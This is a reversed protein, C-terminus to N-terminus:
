KIEQETRRNNVIMEIDFAETRIRRDFYLLTVGIFWIPFVLTTLVLRTCTMIVYFPFHSRDIAKSIIAWQIIDMFDTKGALQALILICGLSVEFIIRIAFALLVSFFLVGFAQWEAGRVLESSRKLAYRVSPQELLVTQALFAWRVLIYALPVGMIAICVLASAWGSSLSFFVPTLIILVVFLWLLHCGLMSWFRRLVQRLAARSTIHGGLYTTASAVVIGGMSVLEVLALLLDTLAELLGFGSFVGEISYKALNSFFYVAAIGFFLLFQNRYLSFMTDLIDGLRMPQLTPTENENPHSAETADLM